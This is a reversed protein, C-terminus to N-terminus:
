DLVSVKVQVIGARPAFPEVFILYQGPALVQELRANRIGGGDDDRGILHRRDRTILNAIPDLDSSGVTVVYTAQRDIDVSFWAGDMAEELLGLVEPGGPMVPAASHPDPTAQLEVTLDVSGDAEEYGTVFIAYDGLGLFRDIRADLQDPGVDDGYGLRQGGDASYLYMIPDFGIVSIAQLRYIGITNARFRYWAGNGDRLNARIAESDVAIETMTSLPPPPLIPQTPQRPSQTRSDVFSILLFVMVILCLAGILLMWGLYRRRPNIEARVAQAEDLAGARELYAIAEQAAEEAEANRKTRRLIRALTRKVVGAHYWDHMELFLRSASRAADVGKDVDGLGVFVRVLNSYVRARGVTDGRETEIELAEKLHHAGGQWDALDAYALGLNNLVQARRIRDRRPDLLGLGIEFEGIARRTEGYRALITGLLNRSAAIVETSGIQEAGALAQLAATEAAQLDGRDREIAAVGFHIDHLYDPANPLVEAIARAKAFTELALPWVREEALAQGLRILARVRLEVDASADEGLSRLLPIAADWNHRDAALRAEHFRLRQVQAADLLPERERVIQILADCDGLAFQRRTARLLREFARFGRVPDAAILHYIHQLRATRREAGTTRTAPGAFYATLRGSLEAFESRQEPTLWRDLLHRRSTDHLQLDGDVEAVMSLRALRGFLREREDTDAEPVLVELVARDLQHPLAARRLATAVSTELRRLLLDVAGAAGAQLDALDALFDQVKETGASM